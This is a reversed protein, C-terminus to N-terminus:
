LPAGTIEYLVWTIVSSIKISIRILFPTNEFNVIKYLKSCSM